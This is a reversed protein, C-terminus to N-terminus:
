HVSEEIRVSLTPQPFLSAPNFTPLPPPKYEVVVAEVIELEGCTNGLKLIIAKLIETQYFWMKLHAISKKFSAITNYM